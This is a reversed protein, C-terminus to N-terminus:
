PCATSATTSPRLPTPTLPTCVPTAAGIIEAIGVGGAPPALASWNNSLWVDGSQDIQVSTFHQFAASRYGDRPSIISGTTAGPACAQTDIGCLLWVAPTGFGAVWVRNSGDVADSWPLTTVPLAFQGIVAGNPAIEQITSSFYSSVWVDGRSDMAIGLPWKFSDAQIPSFSTPKFDPDIVTVSGGFKGILLAARTNVLAAGGLGANTVWARGAADIQIAFPHNLGGGTISIAKSPDGHPYVVVDGEDPASKPGYNNAIWVNGHQDVAIGQPHKLAGNTWGTSPSVPKGTASYQAVANGGFSGMWVAGQPTIAAGWAGGKMGGGSIPSGFIPQGLPDLATVVESPDQTGPVWNNSSWVDGKADIAIRGSAYLGDDTYLLVLMWAQPPATLAPQYTHSAAALLYLPALSTRPHRALGAVASATDPPAAGGAPTAAQLVRRCSTPDPPACRGVLNALTDLTALTDNKAGNDQNTVVAGAQGTSANALNSSTAAANEIGPSAGAVGSADTFQAMAYGAAVTTLEDVTVTGLTAPAVAAESGLHGVVARLRLQPSPTADVYLVGSAPTAYTMAFTGTDSTTATALRVSGTRSGWYLAVPARALPRDNARVTGVLLQRPGSATTDRTASGAPVSSSCGSAVVLAVCLLAALPMTRAPRDRVIM